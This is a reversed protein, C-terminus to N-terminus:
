GLRSCAGRAVRTIVARGPRKYVAILVLAGLGALTLTGPEPVSAAPTLLFTAERRSDSNIPTVTVTGQAGFDFTLVPGGLFTPLKLPRSEDLNFRDTVTQSLGGLTLTSSSTGTFLTTLDGNTVKFNSSVGASGDLLETDPINPILTITPSLGHPRGDLDFTYTANVNTFEPSFYDGVTLPIIDARLPAASLALAALAVPFFLRSALSTTMSDHEKRKRCPEDPCKASYSSFM